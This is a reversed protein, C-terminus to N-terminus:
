FTCYIGATVHDSWWNNVVYELSYRLEVINFQVGIESVVIVGPNTIKNSTAGIGVDFLLGGLKIGTKGIVDVFFDDDNDSFYYAFYGDAFLFPGFFKRYDGSVGLDTGFNNFRVDLSLVMQSKPTNFYNSSRSTSTKSKNSHSTETNVYSSSQSLRNALQIEEPTRIDYVPNWTRVLYTSQLKPPTLKRNTTTETVNLNNFTFKYQSPHNDDLAEVTYTLEYTLIPVGRMLLSDYVDVTDYFDNREQQTSEATPYKKNSINEYTLFFTNQFLLIGDSYYYIYADWGGRTTNWAGYNVKLDNGLSNVKTEKALQARDSKISNLLETQQKEVSKKVSQIRGTYKKNIENTAEQIEKNRLNQEFPTPNGYEDLQAKRWPQNQIELRRLDIDNQCQKQIEDIEDQVNDRIEIYAKKKNEISNIKDYVSLSGAKLQRVQKAKKEALNALEDRRQKIEDDRLAEKKADAEELEKQKLLEEARMKATKQREQILNREAEAKKKAEISDLSSSTSYNQIQRDLEAIQKYYNEELLRAEELQEEISLEYHGHQLIYKQTATLYIDLKQCLTYTIEDIAGADAILAEKSDYNKSMASALQIGTTLDTFDCSLSYKKNDKIVTSFLAYKATVIKGAELMDKESRTASESKKQFEIIQKEAASDVTTIAGFYDQLNSKLKTQVIGSLSYSESDSVGILSPSIVQIAVGEYSAAFMANFFSLLLTLIFIYKKNM